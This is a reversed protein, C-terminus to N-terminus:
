SLPEALLLPNVKDRRESGGDATDFLVTANAWFDAFGFMPGTVFALSETKTLSAGGFSPEDLNTAFDFTINDSKLRDIEESVDRMKTAINILRKHIIDSESQSLPGAM